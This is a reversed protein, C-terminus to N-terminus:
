RTLERWAEDARRATAEVEADALRQLEDREEVPLEGGADRAARWRGMLEELRRRQEAGFFRDPRLDRVILLTGGEDDPLRATLADIAEGATRGVAQANGGVARYIAEEAGSGESLITVRMMTAGEGIGKPNQSM